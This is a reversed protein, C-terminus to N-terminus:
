FVARILFGAAVALVTCLTYFLWVHTKAWRMKMVFLALLLFLAFLILPLFQQEVANCLLVTSLILSVLACGLVIAAAPALLGASSVKQKHEM